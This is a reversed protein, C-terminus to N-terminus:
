EASYSGLLGIFLVLMFEMEVAVSVLLKYKSEILHSRLEMVVLVAVFYIILTCSYFM